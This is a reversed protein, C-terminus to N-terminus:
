FQFYIFESENFVGLILIAFVLAYYAGWRVPTPWGRFWAAGAASRQVLHVAEMFLISALAIALEYRGLAVNIGPRSLDLPWLSRLLVLADALSNARFFIWALCVLHFTLIVQLAALLRPARALGVAARAPERLGRTVASLLYYSGHLAGWVVFTWNAGHWLGSIVFVILINYYWRGRSVHSGGLPIYLYDRFWTSLSIHWRKWFEGISRAAYPFNFNNMIRFGM